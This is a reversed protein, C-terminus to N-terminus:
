HLPLHHHRHYSQQMWLFRDQIYGVVKNIWSFSRQHGQELCLRSHSRVEWIIYLVMNFRLVHIEVSILLFVKNCHCMSLNTFTSFRSALILLTAINRIWSDLRKGNPCLKTLLSIWAGNKERFIMSQGINDSVCVFVLSLSSLYGFKRIMQGNHVFNAFVQHMFRLTVQNEWIMSGARYTICFEDSIM